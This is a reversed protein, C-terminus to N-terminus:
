LNHQKLRARLRRIEDQLDRVRSEAATVDDHEAQVGQLLVHFCFLNVCLLLFEVCGQTPSGTHCGQSTSLFFHTQVRPFFPDPSSYVCRVHVCVRLCVCVCTCVM